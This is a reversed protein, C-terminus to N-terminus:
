VRLWTPFLLRVTRQGIIISHLGKRPGEPTWVSWWLLAADLKDVPLGYVLGHTFQLRLTKTVGSFAWLSDTEVAFDGAREQFHRSLMLINVFSVHPAGCLIAACIASPMGFQPSIQENGVLGLVTKVIFRPSLSSSHRTHLLSLAIPPPFDKKIGRDV